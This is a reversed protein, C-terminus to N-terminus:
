ENIRTIMKFVTLNVGKTINPVCIKDFLDDRTNCIGDCSHLSVM